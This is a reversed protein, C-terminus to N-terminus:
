AWMKKFKTDFDGRLLQFAKLVKHLRTTDDDVVSGDADSTDEAAAEDESSDDDGDDWSDMVKEKKAKVPQIPVNEEAKFALPGATGLAVAQSLDELEQFNVEEEHAAGRGKVELMEIDADSSLKFFNTLGTVITALVRSFDDLAFWVEGKRIGNGEELAKVNGHRFFDYLYANLPADGEDPYIGVHPIASEELWVGSRVTQCLDSISEWSDDHGSLAIFPSTIKTPERTALFSKVSSASKTGGCKQGTFPLYVDPEKVQQDIFTSVYGAFLDRTNRSHSRMIAIADEPLNPLVVISSSQKIAEARRESFAPPLNQRGFIHSLVLMLQDIVEDPNETVKECLEHFFGGRLLAHFAFAANETYYLHCVLGAFNLPTGKESLLDNQRLYELSFRLHHLVTHKAEPGGLYIRPSAFISDIAKIAFTSQDSGALLSTMRLVLSTTIPFHGSLDPLRSSLIRFIRNSSLGHFVVNGLLDFGRRGARGAAQRYNLATLFISDGSFVVTKCPMNIGLALTGTAIVVRLYGKRFLSECIQRYKRNMGAHHIGIGRQLAEILWEAIDRRELDNRYELFESKPMLKTNAMHFGDIPDNPDFSAFASTDQSDERRRDEKSMKEDTSADKKPKQKASSAAKKADVKKWAEWAIIKKKWTPDSEKWKNEAEKVQTFIHKAISECASRDYNFFLAPLADQQNLSAILPLTTEKLYTLQETTSFDMPLYESYKEFPGISEQSTPSEFSRVGDGFEHVVKEFPSSPKAMWTLLLDKLKSTWAVVEVKRPVEPLNKQPNLTDDVPFDKTQHKTMVEWLLLADRPELDLDAPMGRSRNQLSAVPHIFKFGPVDDLGLRISPKPFTFGGFKFKKPPQYCFKRLDSYRAKHQVMELEMGNAQQTNRLWDCFALPNGVTASLAIIPCPAMLLLQEWVVGDDAQGICHVEDFIIRKIRTSWKKANSPAMLLIQLVAPVTVLVQCGTPNNIRYDRTHIGWVSKGGHKFTKSFRAAVEAAIQNVLAKTPAVYVIVGNDDEQLIQKMAYFSIFTKGASTPAVVFLSKHEDILDLVRRQWKDPRFGTVRADPESDINRDMYPGAFKLQFDLTSSQNPIALEATPSLEVFKFSLKRDSTTSLPLKPLHLAELTIQLCKAIATSVGEALAALKLSISWILVAIDPSEARASKLAALKWATAACHLMYCYIEPEVVSRRDNKLQSLAEKALFYRQLQDDVIEISQLKTKWAAIWEVHSKELQKQRRTDLETRMASKGSKSNQQQKSKTPKPTEKATGQSLITEPELIGGAANTLSVAYDRMDAMLFNTRRELRRATKPDVVPIAKPALLRKHNHWHSLEQFIRTSNKDATDAKKVKIHIDKLHKDFVPNDFPLVSVKALSAHPKQSIGGNAMGSSKIDVTIEIGCAEQFAALLAAFDEKISDDFALKSVTFNTITALLVRGDICDALDFEELTSVGMTTTWGDSKLVDLAAEALLSLFKNDELDHKAQRVARDELKLHKVLTLHLITAKIRTVNDPTKKLAGTKVMCVLAMIILVERPSLKKSLEILAENFEELDDPLEITTMLNSSNHRPEDDIEDSRKNAEVVRAMIKTDRFELDNLLATNIGVCLLHHITKRLITQSEVHHEQLKPNADTDIVAKANLAGDHAMWFYAGTLSLYESFEPDWPSTFRRLPINHTTSLAHEFHQIIAERAFLYKSHASLETYAPICANALSDFFVVGFNCNRTKLSHLFREALFSAHLLQLGDDFNLYENEFVHLLLSDGNLLFFESGAYDGVLDVKLSFLKSYWAQISM